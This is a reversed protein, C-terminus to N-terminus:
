NSLARQVALIEESSFKSYAIQKLRAKEEATLGGERMKRLQNMEAISFRSMAFRVAEQRSAFQQKDSSASNSSKPSEEGSQVASAQNARMKEEDTEKTSTPPEKSSSISSPSGSEQAISEKSPSASEQVTSEESAVAQQETSHEQQNGKTVATEEQQSLSKMGEKPVFAQKEFEELEENMRKMLEKDNALEDSIKKAAMNMTYQYAAYGGAGLLVVIFSVIIFSKKKM